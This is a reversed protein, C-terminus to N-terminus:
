AGITFGLALKSPAVILSSPLVKLFLCVKRRQQILLQRDAIKQTEVQLEDPSLEDLSAPIEPEPADDDVSALFEASPDESLPLDIPFRRSYRAFVVDLFERTTGAVVAAKYGEIQDALFDFRAGKFLLYVMRYMRPLHERVVRSVLFHSVTSTRASISSSLLPLSRGGKKKSQDYIHYERIM